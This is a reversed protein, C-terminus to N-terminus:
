TEPAEKVPQAAKPFGQFACIEHHCDASTDLLSFIEKKWYRKGRREHTTQLISKALEASRYINGVEIVSVGVSVLLPDGASQKSPFVESYM